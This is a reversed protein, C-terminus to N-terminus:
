IFLYVFLYVNSPKFTLSCLMRPKSYLLSFSLLSSFHGPLHLLTQAGWGLQVAQPRPPRLREMWLIPIIFKVKSFQPWSLLHYILLAQCLSPGLCFAAIVLIIVSPHLHCWICLQPLPSHELCSCHLTVLSVNTVFGFNLISRDQGPKHSYILLNEAINQAM